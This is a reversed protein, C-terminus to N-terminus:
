MNRVIKVKKGKNKKQKERGEIQFFVSDKECINIRILPTFFVDLSSKEKTNKQRKSFQALFQLDM